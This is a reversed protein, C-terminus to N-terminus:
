RIYIDADKRQRRKIGSAKRVKLLFEVPARHKGTDFQKIQCSNVCSQAVLDHLLANCPPGLEDAAARQDRARFM